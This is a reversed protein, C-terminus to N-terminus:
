FFNLSCFFFFPTSSFELLTFCLNQNFPELEDWIRTLCIEASETNKAKISMLFAQFLLFTEHPVYTTPPELKATEYKALLNRQSETLHKHLPRLLVLLAVKALEIQALNSIQTGIPKSDGVTEIIFIELKEFEFFAREWEEMDILCIASWLLAFCHAWYNMESHAAAREFWEWAEAPRELGYLATALELCVRVASDSHNQEFLSRISHGYCHIANAIDEHFGPLRLREKEREADLFLRAAKVLEQGESIKNQRQQEVRAAALHCFAAFESSNEDILRSALQKFQVSADALSTKKIKFRSFRGPKIKAAIAKFEQWPDVYIESGEAM